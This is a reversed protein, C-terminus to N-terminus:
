TGLRNSWTPLSDRQKGPLRRPSRWVRLQIPSLRLGRKCGNGAQAPGPNGDAPHRSHLGACSRPRELARQLHSTNAPSRLLQATEMAGNGHVGALLERLRDAAPPVAQRDSERGIAQTLGSQLFAIRDVDDNTRIAAQAQLRQALQIARGQSSIQVLLLGGHREGRRHDIEVGAHHHSQQSRLLATGLGEVPKRLRAVGQDAAVPQNGFGVAGQSDLLAVV